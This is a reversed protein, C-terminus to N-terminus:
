RDFQVESVKRLYDGYAEIIEEEHADETRKCIENVCHRCILLADTVADQGIRRYREVPDANLADESYIITELEPIISRFHYLAEYYYLMAKRNIDKTPIEELRINEANMAAASAGETLEEADVNGCEIEYAKEFMGSGTIIEPIIIKYFRDAYEDKAPAAKTGSKKELFFRILRIVGFVALAIVAFTLLYVAIMGFGNSVIKEYWNFALSPKIPDVYLLRDSVAATLLASVLAPVCIEALKREGEKRERNMEELRSEIPYLSKEISQGIKFSKM